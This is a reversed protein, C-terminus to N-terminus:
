PNHPIPCRDFGSFRFAHTCQHLISDLHVHADAHSAHRSGEDQTHHCYLQHQDHAFRGRSNPFVMDLLGGRYRPQITKGHPACIWVLRGEFVRGFRSTMVLLAGATTLWLSVSNMFPFAVDRAGIQQPVIINILGVLFPMAMFVIMISGHATFIQNFHDPPLFGQSTGAALAQQSRMLVADSLGRLLMVLALIIYMIGIRKHDLSTLWEKWLYTWKKYYTILVLILMALLFAGSLAGMTILNDFPIASLSLKGFMDVDRRLSLAEM